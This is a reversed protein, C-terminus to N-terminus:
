DKKLIRSLQGLQQKGLKAALKQRADTQVQLDIIQQMFSKLRGSLQSIQERSFMQDSYGFDILLGEQSLRANVELSFCFRNDAGRYLQLPRAFQFMNDEALLKDTRGLYNFLVSGYQQPYHNDAYNLLGYEGGLGPVADMQSKLAKLAQASVPPSDITLTLPYLATFWGISRTLDLADHERGHSEIHITLRNNRSFEALTIALASLLIEHMPMNWHRLGKDILQQTLYASFRETYLRRSAERVQQEPLAMSHFLSPQRWDDNVNDRRKINAQQTSVAEVWDGWHSGTAPLQIARGSLLQKCATDLDALLSQWSVADIVLHHIVLLLRSRQNEDVWLVAAVLKGQEIDLSQQIQHEYGCQQDDNNIHITSIEVAPYHEPLHQRWDEGQREFKLTLVRHKAIVANLADALQGESVNSNINLLVSQNFQNPSALQQSFFWKQIPTLPYIGSKFELLPAKYSPKIEVNAALEAVTQHQFLHNPKLQIGLDNAKVVIQIAIISDGGLDFYNDHIGVREINLTSRWIESLRTEIANSPECYAEEVDRHKELPDPLASLDPKGNDTLPIGEMRTLFSPTMAWPLRQSLWDKLSRSTLESQSTYYAALRKGGPDAFFDQDRYQIENLIQYVKGVEIDDDLEEMAEDRQKVGLRVDWSYPLAYNHFGQKQKHVHIGVDNILCNTSRGTDEPRIWPLKSNLYDLMAALDVDCYRYFDVFQIKEFIADDDFASVDMLQAVADDVRHYAKRADAVMQDIADANFRGDKFLEPTLRTEFFQGRSLGTVICAINRELALQMSLTYIVKFCGQCVNSHRELSDVFVQNMAPTRGFVHDVGLEECVRQINVKAKDAIFGNDLTFALAKMGMAVVQALAYTSDKGGSLLVLCDYEGQAEAKVQKFIAALDDMTKFYVQAKRSYQEFERCIHCVGQEDFVIDPFNAPIGCRNCHRITPPNATLPQPQIIQLVCQEVEPHSLIAQEIEALEIRVGNIKIQQDSRGLFEMVGDMRFRALDGTRYMRKGKIFPNSVFRQETLDKRGWYGQALGERYVYMEGSVGAPVPNLGDDLIYIGSNAAPFGIPVSGTKDREPDFRYIMCGVVAETPGYENVIELPHPFATVARQCLESKLDEGGLILKSVRTHSLDMSLVLRLHAPTLKVVDCCADEFVNLVSLDVDSDQEPYVVIAGGCTLPTFLSTVTLDFGINSHLAFNLAQGETYTDRAWHIYEHLGQHDVMVGKPFGTSGSTYIVYALDSAKPVVANFAQPEIAEDIYLRELKDTITAALASDTILLKIATDKVIYRLREVPMRSELPTYAAGSKLVALVAILLDISRPLHIGIIDGQAYGRRQIEAALGDSLQELETYSLQEEGQMVAVANPTERCQRKILQLVSSSQRRIETRNYDFLYQQREQATTLPVQDIVANPDALLADLMALFHRIANNQLDGSFTDVNFDFYLTFSQQDGFDHVQLRLDHQPDGYGTHLWESEVPMGSFPQFTAHIYNLVVNFQRTGAFDSAGPKAYRIWNQFEGNVHKFFEKFTQGPNAQLYLPFMEIFLGITERFALTSRNHVPSGITLKRNDSIRYLWSGLVLLFLKFLTVNINLGRMDQSLALSKLQESRQEGLECAVRRTLSRKGTVKRAYFCIPDIQRKAQDRWYNLAQQYSDQGQQSKEFALYDQWAPLTELMASEGNQIAQYIMAMRKYILSISWADTTIHHQNFYWLCHDEGLDLLASDFSRKSLDFRQANRQALWRQLAEESNSFRSLDIYEAEDPQMEAVVRQMPVGDIVEIVTRLADSEAVLKIFAQSFVQKNMPKKFHFALVMNYLPSHPELQQGMWIMLQSKSLNSRIALEDLSYHISSRYDTDTDGSMMM